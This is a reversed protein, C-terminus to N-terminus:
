SAVEYTMGSGYATMTLKFVRNMENLQTRTWCGGEKEDGRASRGSVDTVNKRLEALEAAALIEARKAKDSMEARAMAPKGACALNWVDMARMAFAPDQTILKLAGNCGHIITTHDKGLLQAVRSYSMGRRHVALCMIIWRARVAESGRRCGYLEVQNVGTIISVARALDPFSPSGNALTDFFGLAVSSPLGRGVSM